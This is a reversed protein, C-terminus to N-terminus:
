KPQHKHSNLVGISRTTCVSCLVTRENLVCLRLLKLDLPYVYGVWGGGHIMTIVSIGSDGQKFEAMSTVSCHSYM